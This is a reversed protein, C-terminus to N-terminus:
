LFVLFNFFSKEALFLKLKYILATSVHNFSSVSAATFGEESLLETWEYTGALHPQTRKDPPFQPEEELPPPPPPPPPLSAHIRVNVESDIEM